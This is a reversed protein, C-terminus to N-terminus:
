QQLKVAPHESEDDPVKEAAFAGYKNPPKRSIGIYLLIPARTKDKYM